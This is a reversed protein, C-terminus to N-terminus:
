WLRGGAVPFCRLRRSQRCCEVPKQSPLRQLSQHLRRELVVQEYNKREAAAEGPAIDLGSLIFYGCSELWALTAQEVETESFAKTM